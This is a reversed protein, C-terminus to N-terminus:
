AVGVLRYRVVNATRGSRARVAIQESEIVWGARRLEHVDAALRSSGYMRWAELSTLSQGALLADLIKGRATGAAPRKPYSTGACENISYTQTNEFGPRGAPNKKTATNM